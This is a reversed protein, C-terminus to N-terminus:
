QQRQASGVATSGGIIGPQWRAATLSGGLQWAPLRQRAASAVAVSDGSNQQWAAQWLQGAATSGGPTSPLAQSFKPSSPLAHFHKPASPLKSTPSSTPPSSTGQGLWVAKLPFLFRSFNPSIQLFRSSDPPIQLFGTCICSNRDPLFEHLFFRHFRSFDPIKLVRWFWMRTFLDELFVTFFIFSFSKILVKKQFKNGM